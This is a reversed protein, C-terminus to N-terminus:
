TSSDGYTRTKTAFLRSLPFWSVLAWSFCPRYGHRGVQLRATGSGGDDRLTLLDVAMGVVVAMDSREELVWVSAAPAGGRFREQPEESSVM